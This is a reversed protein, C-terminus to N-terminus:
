RGAMPLGVGFTAILDRQLENAGGAFTLVVLSRYLNELRSGPVSGPTGATLYSQEGVIEMLLRFCELYHETGFVKITSADAVSLEDHTAAWAM